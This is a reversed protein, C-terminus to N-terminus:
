LSKVEVRDVLLQGNASPAAQGAGGVALDLLMWAPRPPNGAADPGLPWPSHSGKDIFGCAIDDVLFTVRTPEWKASFKHFAASLNAGPKCLIDQKWAEPWGNWIHIAANSLTNWQTYTENIDIEATVEGNEQAGNLLWWGPWYGGQAPAKMWASFTGYRFAAKGRSQLGSGWSPTANLVLHGQGDLREDAGCRIKGWGPFCYDVWKAPDPSAGAPGGFDDAFVVGAAPAPAPTPTPTVTPAPTPTATPPTTTVVLQPKSTAQRSALSVGNASRPALAFSLAGARVASTVDWALWSGTAAGGPPTAMVDALWAPRNDWTVLLESWPAGTTHVSPVLDSADTVYLRLKASTVSGAPPAGFRVYARTASGTTASGAQSDVRLVASGGYNTSAYQQEVSSDATPLLTTTTAAQTVAPLAGIAVSAFAGALARRRWPRATRHPRNLM